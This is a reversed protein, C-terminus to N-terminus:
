NRNGSRSFRRPPQWRRAAMVAKDVRGFQALVARLEAEQEKTLAARERASAQAELEAGIAYAALLLSAGSSQARVRIQARLEGLALGHRQAIRETLDYFKLEAQRMADLFPHHLTFKHDATSCTRTCHTYAQGVSIDTGNM